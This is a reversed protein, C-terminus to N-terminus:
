DLSYLLLAMSLDDFTRLSVRGSPLSRHSRSETGETLATAAKESLPDTGLCSSREEIEM